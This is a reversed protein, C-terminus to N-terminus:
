SFLPCFLAVHPNQPKAPYSASFAPSVVPSNLPTGAYQGPIEWNPLAGESSHTNEQVFMRLQIHVIIVMKGIDSQRRWKQRGATLVTCVQANTVMLSRVRLLIRSAPDAEAVM